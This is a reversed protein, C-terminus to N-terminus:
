LFLILLQIHITVTVKCNVRQLLNKVSIQFANLYREMRDTTAHSILFYQNQIAQFILM